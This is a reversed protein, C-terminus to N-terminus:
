LSLLNQLAISEVQHPKPSAQLNSTQVRMKKEEKKKDYLLGRKKGKPENDKHINVKRL